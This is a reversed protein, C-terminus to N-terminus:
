QAPAIGQCHPALPEIQIREGRVTGCRNFIVNGDPDRAEGNSSGVFEDKGILTLRVRVTLTGAFGGAADFLDEKFTWAFDHDVLHTWVGHQKGFPRNRDSGFLAGGGAATAYARFAPPPPVGPPVVPTVTVIWSGEMQFPHYSQARLTFAPVAIVGALTLAYIISRATVVTRTKM